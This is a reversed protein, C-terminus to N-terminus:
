EREHLAYTIVPQVHLSAALAKVIESGSTTRTGDELELGELKMREVVATANRALYGALGRIILEESTALRWGAALRAPVPEGPAPALVKVYRQRGAPIDDRVYVLEGRPALSITRNIPNDQADGLHRIDGTLIARPQRDWAMPDDVRARTTYNNLFFSGRTGTELTAGRSYAVRGMYASDGTRYINAGRQFLRGETIEALSQTPGEADGRPRWGLEEPVYDYSFFTEAEFPTDAV